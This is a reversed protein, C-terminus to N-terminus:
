VEITNRSGLREEEGNSKKKIGMIIILYMLFFMTRFVFYFYTSGNYYLSMGIGTAHYYTNLLVYLLACTKVIPVKTFLLAIMLILLLLSVYQWTIISEYFLSWSSYTSTIKFLSCLEIVLKMLAPFFLIGVRNTMGYPLLCFCVIMCVEALHFGNWNTTYVIYNLLYSVGLIGIIMNTIISQKYYLKM